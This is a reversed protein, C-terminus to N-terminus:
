SGTRRQGHLGRLGPGVPREHHDGAGDASRAPPRPPGSRGRREAVMRHEQREGGHLARALVLEDLMAPRDRGLHREDAEIELRADAADRQRATRSASERRMSFTTATLTAGKL